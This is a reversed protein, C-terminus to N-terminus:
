TSPLIGIILHMLNQRCKFETHAQCVTHWTTSQPLLNYLLTLSPLSFPRIKMDCCVIYINTFSCFNRAAFSIRKIRCKCVIFCGHSLPKSASSEWRAFRPENGATVWTVWSMLYVTVPRNCHLLTSDSYMQVHGRRQLLFACHISPRILIKLILIQILTTAKVDLICCSATISCIKRNM